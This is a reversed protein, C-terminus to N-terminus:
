KNKGLPTFSVLLWLVGAAIGTVLAETTEGAFNSPHINFDALATVLGVMGAMSYNNDSLAKTKASFSLAVLIVGVVVSTKLATIWHTTTLALANGQVMLMLCAPTVKAIASAFLSLKEKIVAM